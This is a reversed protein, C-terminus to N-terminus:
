TVAPSLGQSTLLALIAEEKGRPVQFSVTVPLKARKAAYAAEEAAEEAVNIQAAFIKELDYESDYAFEYADLNEALYDLRDQVFARAAATFDERGLVDKTKLKVGYEDRLQHCVSEAVVAMYREPVHVVLDFTKKNRKM